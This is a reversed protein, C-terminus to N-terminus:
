DPRARLVNLTLGGERYNLHRSYGSRHRETHYIVGNITQNGIGWSDVQLYQVLTGPRPM